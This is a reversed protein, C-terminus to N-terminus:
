NIEVAKYNEPLWDLEIEKGTLKTKTPINDKNSLDGNQVNSDNGASDM